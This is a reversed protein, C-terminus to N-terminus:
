WSVTIMVRESCSMGKVVFARLDRKGRKTKSGEGQENNHALGKTRRRNGATRDHGQRQTGRSIPTSKADHKLQYRGCELM